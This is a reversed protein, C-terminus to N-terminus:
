LGGSELDARAKRELSAKDEQKKIAAMFVGLDTAMSLASESLGGEGTLHEVVERIQGEEIAQVLHAALELAPTHRADAQALTHAILDLRVTIEQLQTVNAALTATARHLSALRNSIRLVGWVAVGVLAVMSLGVALQYGM